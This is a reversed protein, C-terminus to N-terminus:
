FDPDPQHNVPHHSPADDDPPDDYTETIEPDLDLLRFRAAELDLLEQEYADWLDSALDELFNWLFEAQAPTLEPLQLNIRVPLRASM